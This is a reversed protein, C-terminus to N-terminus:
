LRCCSDAEVLVPPVMESLHSSLELHVEGPPQGTAPFSMPLAHALSEQGASFSGACQVWM